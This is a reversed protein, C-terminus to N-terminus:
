NLIKYNFCYNLCINLWYIDLSTMTVFGLICSIHSHFPMSYIYCIVLLYTWIPIRIFVIVLARFLKTWFQTNKMKHYKFFEDLGSGISIYEAMAFFSFLLSSNNLYICYTYYILICFLHHIILSLRRIDHFYLNILDAIFFSLIFNNLSIIDYNSYEIPNISFQDLNEYCIKSSRLSIYLCILSRYIQLLVYNDDIFFKFINYYIHYTILLFFIFEM